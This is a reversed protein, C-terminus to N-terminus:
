VTWWTRQDPQLRLNFRHGHSSLTAIVQKRANPAVKLVPLKAGFDTLLTWKKGGDRSVYVQGLRTGRYRTSPRLTAAGAQTSEVADGATVFVTSAAAMVATTRLFDRRRM